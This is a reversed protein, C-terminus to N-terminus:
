LANQLADRRDNRAAEVEVHIEGGASQIVDLWARELEAMTNAGKLTAIAADKDFTVRPAPSDEPLDRGSRLGDLDVEFRGSGDPRADLFDHYEEATRLGMSIEPATTNIMWAAARYRLMQEPITKWKSDKRGYWGEDKSLQITILPGEIKEGTALETTYAVCGWDDKGKTGVMRYKVSAFRGCQNFCAILFKAAWGPNGYVIYLNQMVMLPSAGMRHAMELAIACNAVNNQFRDPVITSKAFMNAVRQVLEFAQLSTFGVNVSPLQSEHSAAPRLAALTTQKPAETPAGNTAPTSM